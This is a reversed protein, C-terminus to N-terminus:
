SAGTNDPDVIGISRLDPYDGKLAEMIRVRMAESLQRSNVMDVWDQLGMSVAKKADMNLTSTAKHYSMARSFAGGGYEAAYALRDRYEKSPKKDGTVDDFNLTTEWFKGDDVRFLKDLSDANTMGQLAQLVLHGLVFTYKPTRDETLELPLTVNYTFLCPRDPKMVRIGNMYIYPSGKDYIEVYPTNTRLWLKPDVDLFITGDTYAKEMEPCDVVILTRDAEFMDEGAFEACYSRGNEDRTNSELERVAMWPEWNKGLELTFPLEISRGWKGMFSRKRMRVFEFEKGRFSKTNLYFEYEEDGRYVAMKGGLRLVIAVTYKLGTGFFGIPTKTGPKANLGFTTFSQLPILGPTDFMLM